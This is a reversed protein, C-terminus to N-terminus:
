GSVSPLAPHTLLRRLSEERAASVAPRGKMWQLADVRKVILLYNDLECTLEVHRGTLREPFRLDVTALQDRLEDSGHLLAEAPTAANEHLTDRLSM